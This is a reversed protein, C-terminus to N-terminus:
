FNLTFQSRIKFITKSNNASSHELEGNLQLRARPGFYVAPGFRVILTENEKLKLDPEIFSLSAAFEVGDIDGFKEIVKALKKKWRGSVNFVIFNRSDDTNLFNKSFRGFAIGGEIDIGSFLYIGFDPAITSVLGTSDTEGIKNGRNNAVGSVGIKLTNSLNFDLRVVVM